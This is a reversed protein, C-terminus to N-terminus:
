ENNVEMNDIFVIKGNVETFGLEQLKYYTKIVSDFIPEVQPVTPEGNTTVGSFGDIKWVIAVKQRDRGNKDKYNILIEDGATLDSITVGTEDPYMGMGMMGMCM